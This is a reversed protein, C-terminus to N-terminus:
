RQSAWDLLGYAINLEHIKQPTLSVCQVAREPSALFPNSASKAGVKAQRGDAKAESRAALNLLAKEAERKAKGQALKQQRADKTHGTFVPTDVYSSNLFCVRIALPEIQPSCCKVIICVSSICAIQGLVSQLINANRSAVADFITKSLM